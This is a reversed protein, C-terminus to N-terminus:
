CGLRDVTRHVEAYFEDYRAQGDPPLTARDQPQQQSLITLYLPCQAERTRQERRDSRINTVLASAVVALLMAVALLLFRRRQARGLTKVSADLRNVGAVLATATDDPM